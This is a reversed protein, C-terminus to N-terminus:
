LFAGHAVALLLAAAVVLRVGTLNPPRISVSLATLRGLQATAHDGPRRVIETSQRVVQDNAIIQRLFKFWLLLPWNFMVPIRLRNLSTVTKVQLCATLILHKLLFYLVM